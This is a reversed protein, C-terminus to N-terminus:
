NGGLLKCDSIRLINPCSLFTSGRSVRRALFATVVKPAWNAKFVWMRGSQNKNSFSTRASELAKRLTHQSLDMAPAHHVVWRM